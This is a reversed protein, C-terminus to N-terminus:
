REQWPRQWHKRLWAKGRQWSPALWRRWVPLVWQQWFREVLPIEKRLIALAALIMVIGQLFPLVLGAIGGLLLLVGVGIRILRWIHGRRKGAPLPLREHPRAM